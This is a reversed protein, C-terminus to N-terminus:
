KVWIDFLINDSKNLSYQNVTFGLEPSIAKLESQLKDALQVHRKDKLGGQSNYGKADYDIPNRRGIMRLKCDIKLSPKNDADLKFDKLSSRFGTEVVNGVSQIEFGNRRLVRDIESYHKEYIKSKENIWKSYIALQNILLDVEKQFSDVRQGILQAVDNANEKLIKKGVLNKVFEKVLQRNETTLKKM